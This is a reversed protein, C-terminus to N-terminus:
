FNKKNYISSYLPKEKEFELIRDIISDNTYDNGISKLRIFKNFCAHKVSINNDTIKIEYGALQMENVFQRM